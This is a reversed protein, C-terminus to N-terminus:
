VDEPPSLPDASSMRIFGRLHVSCTPCTFPDSARSDDLSVPISIMLRCEPCRIGCHIKGSIRMRSDLVLIPDIEVDLYKRETKLNVM